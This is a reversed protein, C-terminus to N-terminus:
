PQFTTLAEGFAGLAPTVTLAAPTIEFQRVSVVAGRPPRALGFAAAVAAPLVRNLEKRLTPLAQAGVLNAFFPLLPTLIAGLQGGVTITPSGALMVDCVRAVDPTVPLSLSLPVNVAFPVRQAGWLAGTVTATGSAAVVLAGAGLTVALTTVTIGVDGQVPGSLPTSSQFPLEVAAVWAEVDAATFTVPPGVVIEVRGSPDNPAKRPLEAILGSRFDVGQVAPNGTEEITIGLANSDPQSTFSLGGPGVTATELVTAADGDIQWLKATRSAAPGASTDLVVVEAEYASANQRQCEDLQRQQDVIQRSLDGITALAKWRDLPALASLTARVTDRQTELNAIMTAIPQCAPHIPM